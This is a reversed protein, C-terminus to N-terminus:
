RRRAPCVVRDVWAALLENARRLHPPSTSLAHPAGELLQHTVLSPDPHADVYAAVTVPPVDVDLEAQQVLLPLSRAGAIARTARTGGGPPGQERWDRMRTHDTEDFLARMPDTDHGDDPYDAPVRLVLADVRREAVLQAALWGGFSTGVVLVREADPVLGLLEDHRDIAFRLYQARTLALRDGPADGHGPLDPVLCTFGLQDLAAAVSASSGRRSGSWGHLVLAALPRSTQADTPM